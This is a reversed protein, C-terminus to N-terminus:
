GLAERGQIQLWKGRSDLNTIDGEFDSELISRM